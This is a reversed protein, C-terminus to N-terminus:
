PNRGNTGARKIFNDLLKREGLSLQWVTHGVSKPEIERFGLEAYHNRVLENKLTPIYEGRIFKAGCSRAVDCLYNMLFREVGRKLVRCSMVWTDIELVDGHVRGLAVSILGNDGFRDSLRVTATIWDRSQSLAQVESITRRRTTLNFQNSKNILQVSRELAAERVPEITAVMDLSRLFDEVDGVNAAVAARQANLRYYDTRQFDESGLSTVQFYRHRELAEISEVPDGSIEPVAVEPVLQRIISREAPNDDVFVLSDLGINLQRAISRLNTAKDEWNAVFCSIDDLRLLMEPHKEFVERAVQADNM